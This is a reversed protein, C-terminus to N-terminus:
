KAERRKRDEVIAQALRQKRLENTLNSLAVGTGGAIVPGLIRLPGRLKEHLKVGGPRNKLAQAAISTAGFGASAGLAAALADGFFRRMYVPGPKEPFPMGAKTEVVREVEQKALKILEESFSAAQVNIM